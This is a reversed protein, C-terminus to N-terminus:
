KRNEEKAEGVGKESDDRGGAKRVEIMVEEDTQKQKGATEDVEKLQGSDNDHRRAM